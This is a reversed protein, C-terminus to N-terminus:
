STKRTRAAEPVYKCRWSVPLPLTFGAKPTILVSLPAPSSPLTHSFHVKNEGEEQITFLEHGLRESAM